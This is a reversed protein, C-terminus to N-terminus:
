AVYIHINWVSVPWWYNDRQIQARMPWWGNIIYSSSTEKRFTKTYPWLTWTTDDSIKKVIATTSLDATKIEQEMSYWTNLELTVDAWDSLKQVWSKTVSAWETNGFWAGNTYNSVSGWLNFYDVVIKIYDYDSILSNYTADSMWIHCNWHSLTQTTIVDYWNETGVRYNGNWWGFSFSPRIFTWNVSAIVGSSWTTSNAIITEDFLQWDPESYLYVWM